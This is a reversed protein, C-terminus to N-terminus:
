RQQHIAKVLFQPIFNNLFNVDNRFNLCKFHFSILLLSLVLM